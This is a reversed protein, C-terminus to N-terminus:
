CSLREAVLSRGDFTLPLAILPSRQQTPYSVLLAISKEPNKLLGLNLPQGYIM